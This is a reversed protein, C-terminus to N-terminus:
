KQMPQYHWRKSTCANPSPLIFFHHMLLVVFTETSIPTAALLLRRQSTERTPHPHSPLPSHKTRHIPISPSYPFFCELTARRHQHPPSSTATFNALINKRPSIEKETVPSLVPSFNQGESAVVSGSCPAQRLGHSYQTCDWLCETPLSFVSGTSRWKKRRM